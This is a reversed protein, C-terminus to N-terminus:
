RRERLHEAVGVGGHEAPRHPQGLVAVRHRGDLLDGIERERLAVDALGAGPQERNTPMGIHLAVARHADPLPRGAWKRSASCFSNPNSGGRGCPSSVTSEIRARRSPLACTKRPRPPLKTCAADSVSTMTSAIRLARIVTCMEVLSFRECRTQPSVASIRGVLPRVSFSMWALPGCHIETSSEVQETCEERPGSSGALGCRFDSTSIMQRIASAVMPSRYPM